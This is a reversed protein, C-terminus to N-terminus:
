PQVAPQCEQIMKLIRDVFAAGRTATKSTQTGCIWFDVVAAHCGVEPIHVQQFHGM